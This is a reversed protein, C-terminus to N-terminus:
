DPAGIAERVLADFTHDDIPGYCQLELIGKSMDPGANLVLKAPLDYPTLFADFHPLEIRSKVIDRDQLMQELESARPSTRILAYALLQRNYLSVMELVESRYFEIVEHDSYLSDRQNMATKVIGKITEHSQASGVHGVLWVLSLIGYRAGLLVPETSDSTNIVLDPGLIAGHENLTISDARFHPRNSSDHQLFMSHYPGFSRKLHDNLLRGAVEKPMTSMDHLVRLFRRNSAIARLDREGISPVLPFIEDKYSVFRTPREGPGPWMFMNVRYLNDMSESLSENAVTDIQRRIRALVTPWELALRVKLSLEEPVLEIGLAEPLEPMGADAVDARLTYCVIALLAM